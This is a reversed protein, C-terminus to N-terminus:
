SLTYALGLAVIIAVTVIVLIIHGSSPEALFDGLQEGLRELWREAVTPPEQETDQTREEVLARNLQIV